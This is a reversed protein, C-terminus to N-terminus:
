TNRSSQQTAEAARATLDILSESNSSTRCLSPSQLAQTPPRCIHLILSSLLHSTFISCTDRLDLKCPVAKFRNFRIITTCRAGQILVRRHQIASNADRGCKGRWMEIARHHPTRACRPFGISAQPRAPPPFKRNFLFSGQDGPSKAKRVEGNIM